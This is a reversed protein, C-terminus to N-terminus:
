NFDGCLSFNLFVKEISEHLNVKRQTSQGTKNHTQPKDLCLPDPLRYFLRIIMRTAVFAPCRWKVIKM